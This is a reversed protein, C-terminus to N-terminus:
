RQSHEEKVNIVIKDGVPSNEKGKSPSKKFTEQVIKTVKELEEKPSDEVVALSRRKTAQALEQQFDDQHTTLPQIQKRVYSKVPPVKKDDKKEVSAKPPPQPIKPLKRDEMVKSSIVKKTTPPSISQRNKKQVEEIRQRNMESMLSLDFSKERRFLSINPM